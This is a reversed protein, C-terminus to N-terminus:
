LYKPRAIMAHHIATMSHWVIVGIELMPHGPRAPGIYMVEGDSGPIHRIAFAYAHLMDDESVGHRYASELVIPEEHVVLLLLQCCFNDVRVSTRTLEVRQALEVDQVAEDHLGLPLVLPAYGAADAIFWLELRDGIACSRTCRQERGGVLTPDGFCHNPNEGESFSLREM